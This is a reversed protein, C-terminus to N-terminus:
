QLTRPRHTGKIGLFGPLPARDTMLSTGRDLGQNGAFVNTCPYRWSLVYPGVHIQCQALLGGVKESM